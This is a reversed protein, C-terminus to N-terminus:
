HNGNGAAVVKMGYNRPANAVEKGEMCSVKLVVMWEKEPLVMLMRCEGAEQGMAYVESTEEEVMLGYETMCDGYVMILQFFYGTVIGSNQKIRDAGIPIRVDVMRDKVTVSYWCTLLRELPFRKQIELGELCQLGAHGTEKLARRLHTWVRVHLRGTELRSFYEGLRARIRRSMASCEKLMMAGQQLADNLKAKKVSGRQRRWYMGEKTRVLIYRDPDPCPPVRKNNLYSGPM